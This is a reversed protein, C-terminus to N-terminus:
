PTINGERSFIAVDRGNSLGHVGDLTGSYRAAIELAEGQHKESGALTVVVANHLVIVICPGAAVVAQALPSVTTTRVGLLQPFGEQVTAVESGSPVNPM